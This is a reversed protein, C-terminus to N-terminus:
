VKSRTKPSKTKAAEQRQKEAYDKLFLSDLYEVLEIFILQDERSDIKAVLEMYAAIEVYPIASVAGFGNVHRRASLRTFANWIEIDFGQLVPKNKLSPPVVGTEVAM